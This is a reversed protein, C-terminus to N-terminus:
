KPAAGPEKPTEAKQAAARKTLADLTDPIFREAFGAIFCWLFLLAYGASTSPLLAHAFPWTGAAPAGGTLETFAPFVTGTLVKGV